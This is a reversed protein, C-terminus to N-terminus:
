IQKCTRVLQPLGSTKFNIYQKWLHKWRAGKRYHKAEMIPSTGFFWVPPLCQPFQVNWIKTDSFVNLDVREETYCTITVLIVLYVNTGLKLLAIDHFSFDFSEHVIIESVRIQRRAVCLYWINSERLRQWRNPEKASRRDHLGLMISFSSAPLM